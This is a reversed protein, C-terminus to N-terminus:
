PVKIVFDDIHLYQKAVVIAPKNKTAHGMGESEFEGVIEGDIYAQMLNGKIRILFTYWKGKVFSYAFAKEKSAIHKKDAETLLKAKNKEFLDNRHRGFMDDRLIIKKLDFAIRCIHGAHSGKYKSDNFTFNFRPTGEYKFRFSVEVDSFPDLVISNVSNHDAGEAMKGLFEGDKVVTESKYSKWKKGLDPGSFDDQFVTQKYHAGSIPEGAQLGCLLFALIFISINSLKM